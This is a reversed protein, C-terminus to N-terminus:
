FRRITIDSVFTTTELRIRREAAKYDDSKWEAGALISTEEGSEPPKLSTVFATTHISVGVDQPVYLDIDGVFGNMRLLTEGPPITAKTFDLTYDAVFFWFEEPAVEWIGSRDQDGIITVTSRSGPEIMRPRLFLFLGLVILGIPWCWAGVNVGFIAGFLFIAGALILVVGVFILGQNRM